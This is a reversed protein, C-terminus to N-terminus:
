ENDEIISQESPFDVFIGFKEGLHRTITEFIKDIDTTSLETTSRKKLQLEQIPRWLYDKILLANWPIDIDEKLTHRVDLGADNLADALKQFYKHLARNQLDTRKKEEM